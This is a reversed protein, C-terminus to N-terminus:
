DSQHAVADQGYSGGFYTCFGQIVYSETFDLLISPHYSTLEDKTKRFKAKVKKQGIDVAELAAKSFTPLDPNFPIKPIVNRTM